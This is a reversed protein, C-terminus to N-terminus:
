LKPLSWSALYPWEAAIDPSWKAPRGCHRRQAPADELASTGTSPAQCRARATAPCSLSGLFTSLALIPLEGRIFTAYDCRSRIAALRSSSSPRLPRPVAILTTVTCSLRCHWSSSVPGLAPAARRPSLTPRCPSAVPYPRWALRHHLAATRPSSRSSSGSRSGAPALTHRLWSSAVPPSGPRTLPPSSPLHGAFGLSAVVSFSGASDYSGAVSPGASGLSTVAPLTRRLCAVRRLRALRRGFSHPAPLSGPRRSLEASTPRPPRRRPPECKFISRTRRNVPRRGPSYSGDSTATPTPPCPLPRRYTSPPVCM